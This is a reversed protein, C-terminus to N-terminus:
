DGPNDDLASKPEKGSFFLSNRLIRAKIFDHNKTSYDREKQENYTHLASYSLGMIEQIEAITKGQKQFEQILAEPTYKKSLRGLRKKM